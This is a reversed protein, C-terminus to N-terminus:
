FNIVGHKLLMKFVRAIKRLVATFLPYWLRRYTPLFRKMPSSFEVNSRNPIHTFCSQEEESSVGFRNHSLSMVKVKVLTYVLGKERM